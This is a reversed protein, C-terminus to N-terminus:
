YWGCTSVILLGKRELEMRLVKVTDIMLACQLIIRGDERTKWIYYCSEEFKVFWFKAHLEQRERTM